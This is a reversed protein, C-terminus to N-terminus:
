REKEEFPWAIRHEGPPLTWEKEELGLTKISLIVPGENDNQIIWASERCDVGINVPRESHFCLSRGVGLETVQWAAIKALYPTQNEGMRYSLWATRGQMNCNAYHIRADNGDQLFSNLLLIDRAGEDKELTLGLKGEEALKVCEAVQLREGFTSPKLLTVFCKKKDNSYNSVNLYPGYSEAGPYETIQINPMEPFLFKMQLSAKEGQLIVEDGQVSDGPMLKTANECISSKTHFLLEPCDEEQNMLVEDWIVYYSRDLHFITRVYSELLGGYSESADGQVVEFGSAFWSETLKGGGYNPQGQGNVLLSNHGVTGTTYDARPGPVYDQYGPNTLLWEGGVNLMMNNQDKHNHGNDSGSSTFCLLHDHEGWGTRLSTWGIGQFTRSVQERFFVDPAVAQPLQRLNMLVIPRDAEFQKVYWMAVPHLHHSAVMSMMYSLDLKYFSDSFNPFTNVVGPSLFRFFREPLEDKVYPHNCLVPDGTVRHYLDAAMWVHRAAVNDYLIGETQSSLMKRDLFSILYNFAQNMYKAAFPSDGQLAAAGYMMAVRKAAIINHMDMNDIDIALPQLGRSLLAESLSQREDETLTGHIADYAIAAGIMFHANSLNGEAGRHDFEYWKSFGALAVLYMKAKKAYRSEGTVLFAISLAYMREEVARSFMTWYPYDVYGAPNPITKPEVLPLPVLMVDSVSPYSVQFQQEREYEDAQQLLAEWLSSFAIGKQDGYSVREKFARLENASFLIYPRKILSPKYAPIVPAMVRIMWTREVDSEIKTSKVCIQAEGIQEGTLRLGNISIISPDSSEILWESENIAKAVGEDDMEFLALHSIEGIELLIPKSM